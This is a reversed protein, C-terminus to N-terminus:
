RICRFIHDKNNIVIEEVSQYVFFLRGVFSTELKRVGRLSSVWAEVVLGVVPIWWYTDVSMPVWCWYMVMCVSERWWYTDMNIPVLCWYTDVSMPVWCWYLVMVCFSVMVLHGYEVWKSLLFTWTSEHYISFASDHDYFFCMCTFTIKTPHKCVTCYKRSTTLMISHWTKTPHKCITWYKSSTTLMISHWTNTPHKCITWYKCSITLMISHWTKTPYKWITWYKCSTTLM